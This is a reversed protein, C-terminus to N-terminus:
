KPQLGFDCTMDNDQVVLAIRDPENDNVILCTHIQSPIFGPTFCNM